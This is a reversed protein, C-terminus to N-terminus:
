RYDDDPPFHRLQIEDEFYCKRELPGFRRKVAKTTDILSPTIAINVSQGPEVSIGTQKMIPIDLHHLVSLSFGESGFQSLSYDHTEADLLMHLGNNIGNKCGKKM